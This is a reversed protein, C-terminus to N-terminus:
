NKELSGIQSERDIVIRLDDFNQQQLANLMMCVQDHVFAAM